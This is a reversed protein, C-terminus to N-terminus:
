GVAPDAIAFQALPSNGPAHSGLHMRTLSRVPVFGLRQAAAKAAENGDPVDWLVPRDGTGGLLATVLAIAGEVRPCTVPGLYDANAGARVLGWGAAPQGAPWVLAKVSHRALSRLLASRRAGIATGDIQEIGDWDAEVLERTTPVGAGPTSHRCEDQAPRQGRTLTWEPVFGLREYVPYGAPTADLRICRVGRGRLYEIAQGMLRTAIGQRRHKPHVLMMGIWAIAQGYSTTTVTGALEGEFEALFCGEPELELLRRWDEPTQNWGALRRLEEVAPVDDKGMVRLCLESM